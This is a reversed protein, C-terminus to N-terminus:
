KANSYIDRFTKLEKKLDDVKDTTGKENINYFIEILKNCLKSSKEYIKLFIIILFSFQKKEEYFNISDEYLKNEKKDIKKNKQM